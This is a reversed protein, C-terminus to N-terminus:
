INKTTDDVKRGQSGIHEIINWIMAINKDINNFATKRIEEINPLPKEPEIYDAVFVIKELLSMNERGMVHNFIASIIEEDKINLQEMVMFAGVWSYCM